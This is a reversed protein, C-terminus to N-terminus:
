SAPQETEVPLELQNWRIMGGAMSAVEVFGLERLTAAATLSRKGSRCITVVRKGRDWADAHKAVEEVPALLSGAVRGLPGRFEEPTRVDILLLSDAHAAVFPPEVEAVQDEESAFPTSIGCQLNAPVADHIRRPQALNLNDMIEVFEEVSKGQGLRANHALEEAVTTATLGRYDHGPYLRTHPPLTFIKEHISAYLTRADGNQFDTRGCGRILLADGTFAMSQERLYFTLCGDTHGPTTLVELAHAGFNVREGDVVHHNGCAAGGHKAVISESSHTSRFRSASTVHDAHVHTEITYRLELGLESLLQSDRDYHEAVPDILVAQSSEEDALLYTYTCTKRDFLQRFIM